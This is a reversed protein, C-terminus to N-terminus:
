RAATSPPGPARRAKSAPQNSWSWPRPPPTRSSVTRRHRLSKVAPPSTASFVLMAGPGGGTFLSAAKRTTVGKSSSGTASRRLQIIGRRRASISARSPTRMLRECSDLAKRFFTGSAAAGPCASPVNSPFRPPVPPGAGAVACVAPRLPRCQEERRRHSRPASADRDRGRRPSTPPPSAPAPV